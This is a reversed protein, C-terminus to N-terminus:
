EVIRKMKQRLSINPILHIESNDLVDGFSSFGTRFISERDGENVQGKLNEILQKASIFYESDKEMISQFHILFERRAKTTYAKVADALLTFFIEQDEKIQKELGNIAQETQNFLDKVAERRDREKKLNEMAASHESVSAEILEDEDLKLSQIKFREIEKQLEDLKGILVNRRSIQEQIGKLLPSVSEMVFAELGGAEFSQIHDLNNVDTLEKNIRKLEETLEKHKSKTITAKAYAEEYTNKLSELQGKKSLPVASEGGGNQYLFSELRIKADAATQGSFVSSKLRSLEEAVRQKEKKLFTRKVAWTESQESSQKKGM